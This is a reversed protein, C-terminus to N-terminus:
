IIPVLFHTENLTILIQSFILPGMCLFYIPTDRGINLSLVTPITRNISSLLYFM